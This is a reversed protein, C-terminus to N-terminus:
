HTPKRSICAVIASTSAAADLHVETNKCKNYIFSQHFFYYNRIRLRVLGYFYLLLLFLLVTQTEYVNSLSGGGGLLTNEM